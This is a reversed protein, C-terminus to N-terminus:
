ETGRFIASALGVREQRLSIRLAFCSLEAARHGSMSRLLLRKKAAIEQMMATRRM